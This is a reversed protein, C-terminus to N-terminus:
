PRRPLPHWTWEGTEPDKKAIVEAKSLFDNLGQIREALKPDGKMTETGHIEKARQEELIAKDALLQGGDDGNFWDRLEDRSLQNKMAIWNDIRTYFDVFM